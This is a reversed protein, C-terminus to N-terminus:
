ASNNLLPILLGIDKLFTEEINRICLFINLLIVCDFGIARYMSTKAQMYVYLMFM